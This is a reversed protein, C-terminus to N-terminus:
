DGSNLPAIQQSGSDYFRLMEPLSSFFRYDELAKGSDYYVSVYRNPLIRFKAKDGLIYLGPSLEFCKGKQLFDMLGCDLYIRESDAPFKNALRELITDANANGLIKCAHNLELAFDRLGFKLATLGTLQLVESHGFRREAFEAVLADKLVRAESFKKQHLIKQRFKLSLDKSILAIEEDLKRLYPFFECARNWNNKEDSESTFTEDHKISEEYKRRSEPDKLIEYAHLIEKLRREAFNRDGKFVDPHFAKILARYASQIIDQSANSPVGLTAYYDKM